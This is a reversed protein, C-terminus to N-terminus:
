GVWWFMRFCCLFCSFCSRGRGVVWRLVCYATGGKLPGQHNIAANNAKEALEGTVVAPDIVCLV